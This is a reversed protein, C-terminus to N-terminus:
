PVDRFNWSVFTPFGSLWLFSNESMKKQYEGLGPAGPREGACVVRKGGVNM